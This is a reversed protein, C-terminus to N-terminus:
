GEQYKKLFLFAEEYTAIEKKVQAERVQEILQGILPGAPMQLLNMIENGNILQSPNVVEAYHNWFANFIRRINDLLNDIIEADVQTDVDVLIYAISLLAIEIGVEKSDRFFRYIDLDGFSQPVRASLFFDFFYGLIAELRRIEAHSLALHKALEVALNSTDIINANEQNANEEFQKLVLYLGSFMLLGRLSRLPNVQYQFHDRLQNRFRGLYLSIKGKVLNPSNDPDFEEILLDCVMETQSILELTRDWIKQNERIKLNKYKSLDPLIESIVGMRDLVRLALNVKPGELIKFIEDRKREASVSSLSSVNKKMERITEPALKLNFALALRVARLIRVPDEEISNGACLRVIGDRLDQQGRLPDKLLLDKSLSIAMANITFDRARLDDELCDGRMEAFDVVFAFDSGREYIVRATNRDQDLMYFSGNLKNAVQRAIRRVNGKLVIDIDHIDRQLLIDRVAGGVLYAEEEDRLENELAQWLAEDKIFFNVSNM